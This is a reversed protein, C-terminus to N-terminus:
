TLLLSMGHGDGLVSFTLGKIGSFDCLTRASGKNDDGLFLTSQMIEGAEACVPENSVTREMHGRTIKRLFFSTASRHLEDCMTDKFIKLICVISVVTEHARSNM